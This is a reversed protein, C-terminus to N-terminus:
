AARIHVGIRNDDPNSDPYVGNDTGSHVSITGQGARDATATFGFRMTRSAGASLVGLKGSAYGDGAPECGRWGGGYPTVTSLAVALVVPAPHHGRNVVSTTLNGQWTGDGQRVM